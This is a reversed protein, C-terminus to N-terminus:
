FSGVDGTAAVTVAKEVYKVPKHMGDITDFRLPIVRTVWRFPHKAPKTTLQANHPPLHNFLFPLTPNRLSIPFWPICSSFFVQEIQPCAIVAFAIFALPHIWIFTALQVILGLAVLFGSWRLRREILPTPM